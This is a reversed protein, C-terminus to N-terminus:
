SLSSGPVQAVPPVTTSARLPLIPALALMFGRSGLETLERTAYVPGGSVPTVVLMAGPQTVAVPVRISTGGTVTVTRTSVPTTSGAAYLDLRVVADDTPAALGVGHRVSGTALGVVIGPATLRPTGATTEMETLTATTGGATMVVAAVVPTDSTVVVGAAGGALADTLSLSRLHERDLAVSELGVPTIAGDATLLRVTATADDDPALLLLHAERVAPVDPIVVSRSPQTVPLASMGLPTLGNAATELASVAIRGSRAIVHVATISQGPALAALRVVSRSLAPVVVGSGAPSAIEGDTGYVLLDVQSPRDDDNVLLVQMQRGVASSGGVLWGDTLPRACPSVALGRSAGQGSRATQDAGFGAAWSGTARAIRPSSPKRSITDTVVSGPAAIPKQAGSADQSLTALTATGDAVGPVPAVGASVTSVLADTAVTIPCLLEASAVPEVVPEADPTTTPGPLFAWGAGVVLLAAVAGLVVTAWPRRLFARLGTV